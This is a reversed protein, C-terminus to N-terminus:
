QSAEWPNAALRIQQRLRTLELEGRLLRCDITYAGPRWPQWYLRLRAAAGSPTTLGRGAAKGTADLATWLLTLPADHSGAVHLPLALEVVSGPYFMFVARSPRGLMKEPLGSLTIARSQLLRQGGFAKVTLTKGRDAPMLTYPLEMTGTMIQLAANDFLMRPQGDVEVAMATLAEKRGTVDFRCVNRGYRFQGFSFDRLGLPLNLRDIGTLAAYADLEHFGSVPTALSTMYVGTTRRARAIHFSWPGRVSEVPLNALPVSMELTWDRAGVTAAVTAGSDYGLELPLGAGARFADMLVGAPNAVLQVYRDAGRECPVIFVEVDDDKWVQSDRETHRVVLKEVLPEECFVAIHLHETDATLLARTTVRETGTLAQGGLKVFRDLVTAGAWCADNLRGDIVPPTPTVALQYTAPEAGAVGTVLLFAAACLWVRVAAHARTMPAEM